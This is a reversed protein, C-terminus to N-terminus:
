SYGTVRQQPETQKFPFFFLLFHMNRIHKIKWYKSLLYIFVRRFEFLIIEPFKLGILPITVFM